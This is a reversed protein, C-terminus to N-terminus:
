KGSRSMMGRTSTMDKVVKLSVNDKIRSGSLITFKAHEMSTLISLFQIALFLGVTSPFQTTAFAALRDEPPAYTVQIFRIVIITITYGAVGILLLELHQIKKFSFKKVGQFFYLPIYIMKGQIFMKFYVATPTDIILAMARAIVVLSVQIEDRSPNISLLSLPGISVMANYTFAIFSTIASAINAYLMLDSKQNLGIQIIRLRYMKLSLLGLNFADICIWHVFTLNPNPSLDLKELFSSSLMIQSLVGIFGLACYCYGYLKNNFVLISFYSCLLFVTISISQVMLGLGLFYGDTHPYMTTTNINPSISPLTTNTFTSNDNSM